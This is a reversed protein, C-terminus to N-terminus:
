WLRSARENVLLGQEMVLGLVSLLSWDWAPITSEIIPGMTPMVGFVCLFFGVVLQTPLAPRNLGPKLFYRLIVGIYYVALILFVTVSNTSLLHPPVFTEM